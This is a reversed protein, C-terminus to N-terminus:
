VFNLFQYFRISYTNNADFYLRFKQRMIRCFVLVSSEVFIVKLAVSFEKKMVPHRMIRARYATDNSVHESRAHFIPSRTCSLQNEVLTM